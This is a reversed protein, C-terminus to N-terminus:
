KSSEFIESGASYLEAKDTSNNTFEVEAYYGLLSAM